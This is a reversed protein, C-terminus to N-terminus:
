NNMYIIRTVNGKQSIVDQLTKNSYKGPDFILFKDASIDKGGSYGYVTVWHMGGYSNQLCVSAMKGESLLQYLRPLAVYTTCYEQSWRNPLSGWILAGGSTYLRTNRALQTPLTENGYYTMILAINCTLCGSRALSYSSNGLMVRQYATQTQVYPFSYYQNIPLNYDQLIIKPYQYDWQAYLTTNKTIKVKSNSTIQTGKTKKTFWGKFTYGTKTPTPLTGYKSGYTVKCNSKSVKGGRANLKVKYTNVKWRAYLTHDETITVKTSSKVKKGATPDTYWGKFTYGTRKPTPLKGYKKGLFVMKDEYSSSTKYNLDYNVQVTAKPMPIATATPSPTISAANTTLSRDAFLILFLLLFPITCKFFNRM